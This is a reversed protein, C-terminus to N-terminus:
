PCLGAPLMVAKRIEEEPMSEPAQGQVKQEELTTSPHGVSAAMSM